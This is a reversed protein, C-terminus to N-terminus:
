TWVFALLLLATQPPRLLYPLRVTVWWLSHGSRSFSRCCRRWWPRFQTLWCRKPSQGLAFSVALLRTLSASCWLDNPFRMLFVSICSWTEQSPSRIVLSLLYYSKAFFSFQFQATLHSHLMTCGHHSGTHRNMSLAFSLIVRHDLLGVDPSFLEWSFQFHPGSSLNIGRHKYHSQKVVTLPHPAVWTGLCLHILLVRWLFICM